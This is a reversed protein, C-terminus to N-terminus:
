AAFMPLDLVDGPALVANLLLIGKVGGDDVLSFLIPLIAKFQLCGHLWALVVIEQAEQGVGTLEIKLESGIVVDLALEWYGYALQGLTRVIQM